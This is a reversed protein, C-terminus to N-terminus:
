PDLPTGLFISSPINVAVPRLFLGTQGKEPHHSPVQLAPGISLQSGNRESADVQVTPLPHKDERTSAM